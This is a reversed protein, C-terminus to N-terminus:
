DLSQEPLVSGHADDPGSTNVMLSGHDICRFGCTDLAEDHIIESPSWINTSQRLEVINVHPSLRLPIM